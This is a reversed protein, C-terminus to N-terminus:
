ALLLHGAGRANEFVCRLASPQDRLQEYLRWPDGPPPADLRHTLCVEFVDGAFIHQQCVDILRCYGQLDFQSHVDVQSTASPCPNGDGRRSTVEADFAEIRLMDDRLRWANARAEVDSAGRGVISLYSRGSEHAHALICDHFTLYVDPLGLDDSGRDPLDEVFHGAEYGFYGVAGALLPIDFDAYADREVRVERLIQRLDDFLDAVRTEVIPRALPRGARDHRRM